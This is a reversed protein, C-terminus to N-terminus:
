IWFVVALGHTTVPTEIWRLADMSDMWTLHKTTLVGNNVAQCQRCTDKSHWCGTLRNESRDASLLIWDFFLYFFVKFLNVDGQLHQLLMLWHLRGRQGAFLDVSFNNNNV